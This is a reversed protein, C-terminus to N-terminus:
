RGPLFVIAWPKLLAQGLPGGKEVLFSLLRAFRLSQMRGVVIQLTHSGAREAPAEPQTPYREVPGRGM